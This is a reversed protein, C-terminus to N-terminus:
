RGSTGAAHFKGQTRCSVVNTIERAAKDGFTVQLRRRQEEANLQAVRLQLQSLRAAERCIIASTWKLHEHRVGM